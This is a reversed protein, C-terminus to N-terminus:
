FRKRGCLIVAVGRPRPRTVLVRRDAQEESFWSAPRL